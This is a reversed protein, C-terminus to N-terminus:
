RDTLFDEVCRTYKEAEEIRPFHGSNEFMVLRANKINEKIYRVQEESCAPDYRGKILMLPKPIDKLMPLFNEIIKGDEILKTLHAESKMWMEDPIKETYVKEAYEEFTIGHLYSRLQMDEINELLSTLDSFVTKDTYEATKLKQLLAKAEDDGYESIYGGMYNAISRSSDIFDLSPCDLILKDVASPYKHAYLCALMGGYSHGLVSWKDIGLKQRMEEIMAAQIDMGYAEGDGIGESRLVGYQDFIVVKLKEGLAKAQGVFDLCSAGPGGHFYVLTNINNDGHIEYYIDKDSIKIYPM